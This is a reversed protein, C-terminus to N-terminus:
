AVGADVSAAGGVGSLIQTLANPSTTDTESFAWSRSVNSRWQGDANEGSPKVGTRSKM